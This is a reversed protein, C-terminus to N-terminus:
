LLTKLLMEQFIDQDPLLLYLTWPGPYQSSGPFTLFCAPCQVPFLGSQSSNWVYTVISFICPGFDQDSAPTLFIGPCLPMDMGVAHRHSLPYGLPSVVRGGSNMLVRSSAQWYPGLM